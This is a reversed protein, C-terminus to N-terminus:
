LEALNKTELAVAKLVDLAEAAEPSSDHLEPARLPELETVVRRYRAALLEALSIVLKGFLLTDEGALQLLQERTLKRLRCATAARVHNARPQGDLFGLEGMVSGAGASGLVATGDGSEAFAEVEGEEVIILSKSPAGKYFIVDGPEALVPVTVAHLRQLEEDTLYAILEGARLAPWWTGAM